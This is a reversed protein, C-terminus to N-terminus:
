ATVDAEKFAMNVVAQQTASSQPHTGREARPFEDATVLFNKKKRHAKCHNDKRQATTQM